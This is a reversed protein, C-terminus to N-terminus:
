SALYPFRSTLETEWTDDDKPSCQLFQWDLSGAKWLGRSDSGITITLVQGYHYHKLKEHICFDGLSYALVQNTPGEAKNVVITTVPQPIHSHHGIVADFELSLQTGKKITGPRPFLEMEYGWHPYLINFMGQGSQLGAEMRKIYDVPQNSWQTAGLIRITNELDIYPTDKSGFVHFGKEEIQRKSDSWIEFGFDGSHNNALGICTKKPPFLESLADLIQPIHRQAMYAGKASTITAEFNGVLYDCTKLYQKLSDGIRLKHGAMDMIDGIFGIKWKPEAISNLECQQPCYDVLGHNKTVPGLFNRKFYGLTERLNYPSHRIKM